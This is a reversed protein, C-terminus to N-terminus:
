GNFDSIRIIKNGPLREIRGALELEVLLVSVAAAPLGTERTLMDIEIPTAELKDLIKTADECEVTEAGCPKPVPSPFDAPPEKLPLVQPTELHNLVDLASEVLPAGTKILHNVGQARPDLPTSPVAFVERGQELAKNATILSGSHLTAEIVTLGTCLGSIIRNRRPFNAPQPPTGFPYDSVLVGKEKIQDYLRANQRPYAVDIGTGLVAITSARANAAYLAGEHAAADIGLAMGSVVSYGNKVFDAAMKRAISKGNVSANRTGVLATCPTKLYSFGGLVSLVPPADPIESLLHPYDDEGTFIMRGGAQEVAAMEKEADKLPCIKLPRKRGGRNALESLRELAEQASSFQTTLTRFAVPGVNESRILRLRAIKESRDM